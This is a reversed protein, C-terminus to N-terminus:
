PCGGRGRSKNIKFRLVAEGENSSLSPPLIKMASKNTRSGQGPAYAGASSPAEMISIRKRRGEKM